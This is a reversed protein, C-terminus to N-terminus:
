KTVLRPMSVEVLQYVCGKRVRRTVVFHGAERLQGAIRGPHTVGFQRARASSIPGRRMLWLLLETQPMPAAVQNALM